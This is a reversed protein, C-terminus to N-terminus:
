WAYAVGIGAIWQDASGRDDVVPSDEADDLLRSYRFGAAAHWNPSFHVAIAPIIRVDKVGSEAEFVPLGTRDSDRESVGFYTEMYNNDAFSAGIGLGLDVMKHVPYWYRASASVTYGDYEGGVDGLFELTIGWRHLPNQSDRWEYGVFVGAEVTGEIEEMDKVVEDEVDDNRGFRYNVVPGLRLTPHNLVNVYLETALLLAYYDTKDLTLKFFPAGGVMFDDSGQYDPLMGVGVGVVNPINDIGFPFDQAQAAQAVLLACVLALFLSFLKKTKSM